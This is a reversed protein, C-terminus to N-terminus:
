ITSVGSSGYSPSNLSKTIHVWSSLVDPKKQCVTESGLQTLFAKSYVKKGTQNTYSWQGIRFLFMKVKIKCM